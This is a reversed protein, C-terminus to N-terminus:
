KKIFKDKFIHLFSLNTINKITFEPLPTSSVSPHYRQIHPPHPPKLAYCIDDM